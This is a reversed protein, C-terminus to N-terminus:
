TPPSPARCRAAWPPKAKNCRRREHAHTGAHPHSPGSRTRLHPVGRATAQGRTRQARPHTPPPLLPHLTRGGCPQLWGSLGTPSRLKIQRFLEPFRPEPSTPAPRPRAARLCLTRARAAADSAKGVQVYAEKQKAASPDEWRRRAGLTRKFRRRRRHPPRSVDRPTTERRTCVHVHPRGRLLGLSNRPM